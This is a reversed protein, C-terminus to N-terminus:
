NPKANTKLWEQDKKLEELTLPFLPAGLRMRAILLLLGAIIFHFLAAGALVGIWANGGGCLLAILFVLTVVTFFYGFVLLILAGIALGLIIGLHVAAEKGEIGALELRAQLYALKAALLASLHGFLGAAKAQPVEDTTAAPM